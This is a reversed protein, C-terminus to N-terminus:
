GEEQLKLIVRTACLPCFQSVDGVACLAKRFFISKSM